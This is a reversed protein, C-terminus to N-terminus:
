LCYFFTLLHVTVFLFIPTLVGHFFYCGTFYCHFVTDTGFGKGNSVEIFFFFGHFHMDMVTIFQIIRNGAAFLKQNVVAEIGNDRSVQKYDVLVFAVLQGLNVILQMLANDQGDVRVVGLTQRSFFGIQIGAKGVSIVTKLM